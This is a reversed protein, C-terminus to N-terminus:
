SCVVSGSDFVESHIRESKVGLERLVTIQAAMFGKPGCIYFDANNPLIGQRKLDNLNLRGTADRRSSPRTPQEDEHVIWARGNPMKELLEDVREGFAQVGAHRAAHLFLVPRKPATVHLQELMAMMPTIGVGASILVVPEQKSEDLFFDGVPSSVEIWDGEKVYDHLYNSVMGEPQEIQKAERKVSIRFQDNKPSDSLSYQRAQRYGLQPLLLRVSVYQGPRYSPLTGGDTPVLEFSTIEDSEDHKRQVSFTRWGTWGGVDQVMASYLNQEMGSLVDALQAYAAAWANIIAPTAAEGLVESISALLHRGVVAYHEKRIGLSVHKAAIRELVSMLVSSDDINEAYAAVAHALAQQQSGSSQHGQNFIERLEPNQQFMRTYFHRTLALGHERLDPATAKVLQRSNFDLM